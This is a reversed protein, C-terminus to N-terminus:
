KIKLSSFHSLFLSLFMSTHNGRSHGRSPIKAQLGPKHGSQFYFQFGKPEWVLVSDVSDCWGPGSGLRLPKPIWQRKFRRSKHSVLKRSLGKHFCGWNQPCPETAKASAPPGLSFNGGKNGPEQHGVTGRPLQYLAPPLLFKCNRIVNQSNNIPLGNAPNSGKERGKQRGNCGQFEDDDKIHFLYPSTPVTPQHGASSKDQTTNLM